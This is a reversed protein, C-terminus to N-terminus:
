TSAIAGFSFKWINSFGNKVISLGALSCNLSDVNMENQNHPKWETHFENRQFKIKRLKRGVDVRGRESWETRKNALTGDHWDWKTGISEILKQTVLRDDTNTNRTLSCYIYQVRAFLRFTSYSFWILDFISLCNHFEKSMQYIHNRKFCKYTKPM